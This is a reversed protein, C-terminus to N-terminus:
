SFFTFQKGKGEHTSFYIDYDQNKTHTNDIVTSFVQLM